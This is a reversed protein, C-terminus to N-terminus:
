VLHEQEPEPEILEPDEAVIHKENEKLEKIKEESLVKSLVGEMYSLGVLNPNDALHNFDPEKDEKVANVIEHVIDIIMAAYNSCIRLDSSKVIHYSLFKVNPDLEKLEKLVSPYSKIKIWTAQGIIAKFNPVYTGFVGNAEAFMKLKNGTLRRYNDNLDASRVWYWLSLVSSFKGICPYTFTKLYAPDLLKGLKLESQISINIHDDGEVGFNNPSSYYANTKFQKKLDKFNLKSKQQM